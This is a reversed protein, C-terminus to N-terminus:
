LREVTFGGKLRVASRCIMKELLAYRLTQSCALRAAPWIQAPSPPGGVRRSPWSFMSSCVSPPPPSFPLTHIALLASCLVTKLSESQTGFFCFFCAILVRSYFSWCQALLQTKMLADRRRPAPFVFAAKDTNGLPLCNSSSYIFVIFM